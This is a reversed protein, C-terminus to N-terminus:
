IQFESKEGRWKRLSSITQGLEDMSKEEQKSLEKAIKKAWLAKHKEMMRLAKIADFYDRRAKAFKEEKEVIVEKQEEIEEEKKEGDEKLKRLYNVHVNGNAIMAGEVMERDMRERSEKKETEIKKREEQLEELKKKAAKLENLAKALRIEASKKERKRLRLLAELRYKAAM